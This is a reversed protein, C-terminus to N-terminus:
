TELVSVMHHYAPSAAVMCILLLVCLAYYMRLRYHAMKPLQFFAHDDLNRSSFNFKISESLSAIEALGKHM